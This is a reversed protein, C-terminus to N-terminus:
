NSLLLPYGHYPAGPVLKLESALAKTLPLPLLVSLPLEGILRFECTKPRHSSDPTGPSFGRASPSFLSWVSLGPRPEFGPTSGVTGKICYYRRHKTHKVSPEGRIRSQRKCPKLTRTLAMKPLSRSQGSPKQVRRGGTSTHHRVRRQTRLERARQYPLLVPPTSGHHPINNDNM